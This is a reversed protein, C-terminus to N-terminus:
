FRTEELNNKPDDLVPSISSFTPICFLFRVLHWQHEFGPDKIGFRDFVKQSESDVQQTDQAQLKELKPTNLMPELDLPIASRSHLRRRPVQPEVWEVRVDSELSRRVLSHHSGLHSTDITRGHDVLENQEDRKGLRSNIELPSKLVRFLYHRDLAGIQGLSEVLRFPKPPISDINSQSTQYHSEIEQSVQQAISNGALTLANSPVSDSLRVAYYHYKEYDL